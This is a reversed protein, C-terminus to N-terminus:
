KNRKRRKLFKAVQSARIFVLALSVNILKAYRGTEERYAIYYIKLPKHKLYLQM